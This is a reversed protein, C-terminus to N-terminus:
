NENVVEECIELARDFGERFRNKKHGNEIFDKMSDVTGNQNVGVFYRALDEFESRKNLYEFVDM